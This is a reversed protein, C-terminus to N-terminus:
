STAFFDVLFDNKEVNKSARALALQTHGYTIL